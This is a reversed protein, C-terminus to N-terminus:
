LGLERKIKNLLSVGLKKRSGYMPLDTKRNGLRVTIHGHGSKKSHFTCGQKKLWRKLEMANM